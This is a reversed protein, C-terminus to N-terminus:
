AATATEEGLAAPCRTSSDLLGAATFQSNGNAMCQVMSCAAHETSQLSVVCYLGEKKPQDHMPHLALKSPMFEKSMQPTGHAHRQQM